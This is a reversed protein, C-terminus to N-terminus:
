RRHPEALLFRFLASLANGTASEFARDWRIQSLHLNPLLGKPKQM